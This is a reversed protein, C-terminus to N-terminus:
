EQNLTTANTDPAFTKRPPHVAVDNRHATQQLGSSIIRLLQHVGDSSRTGLRHPAATIRLRTVVERHPQFARHDLLLEVHNIGGAAHQFGDLHVPRIRQLDFGVNGPLPRPGIHHRRHEM